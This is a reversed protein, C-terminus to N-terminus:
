HILRDARILVSQPLTIGFESAAKVNIVLEFTAPQEIPLDGPKAGNLVRDVYYAARRFNVNLDHGYAAVAGASAFQALVGITPLRHRAATEIITSRLGFLAADASVILANPKGRAVAAVAAVVEEANRAYAPLVKLGVGNGARLATQEHLRVLLHDPNMMFAVSEAGPLISRAIELLKEHLPVALSTLGTVNGGPRGLSQALGEAVPDIATGMIIPLKASKAKLAQAASSVNAFLADPRWALLQSALVPLQNRDATYRREYIINQRERYGREEMGEFFAKLVGPADADFGLGLVGVRHVRAPQARAVPFLVLLGGAIILQRRAGRPWPM